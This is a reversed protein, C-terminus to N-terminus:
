LKNQVINFAPVVSVSTSLDTVDYSTICQGPGLTVDKIQKKFHQTNQIHHQSNGVVPKQIYAIVKTM